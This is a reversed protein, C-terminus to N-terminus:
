QRADRLHHSGPENWHPWGRLCRERFGEAIGMVIRAALLFVFSTALGSLASCVSFVLISILVFPKRARLADSWAAVFYASLAWALALGSSLLGYQENTLGLDEIIFSGLVGVANRDFFVLGFTFGLLLLVGNEYTLWFKRSLWGNKAGASSDLTSM